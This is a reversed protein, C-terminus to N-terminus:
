ITTMTHNYSTRVIRRPSSPLPLHDAQVRRRGCLLGGLLEEEEPWACMLSLPLTAIAAFQIALEPTKFEDRANMQACVTKGPKAVKPQITASQSASRTGSLTKAEFGVSGKCVPRIAASFVTRHRCAHLGDASM